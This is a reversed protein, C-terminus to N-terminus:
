KILSSQQKGTTFIISIFQITKRMINLIATFLLSSYSIYNECPLIKNLIGYIYSIINTRFLGHCPPLRGLQLLRYKTLHRTCLLSTRLIVSASMINIKMPISPKSIDKPLRNRANRVKRSLLFTLLFFYRRGQGGLLPM